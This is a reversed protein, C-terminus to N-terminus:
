SNPIHSHTLGCWLISSTLILFLGSLLCLVRWMCTTHMVHRQCLLNCASGKVVLLTSQRDFGFDNRASCSYNGSDEGSLRDITLRSEDESSDIKHKKNVSSPSDIISELALGNKSWEFAVPKSGEYSYCFLKFKQGLNFQQKPKFEM